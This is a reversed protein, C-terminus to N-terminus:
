ALPFHNLLAGRVHRRDFLQAEILFLLCSESSSHRANWILHLAYRRLLAKENPNYISARRIHYFVKGLVKLSTADGRDLTLFGELLQLEVDRKWFRNGAMDSRVRRVLALAEDNHGAAALAFCRQTPVIGFIARWLALIM